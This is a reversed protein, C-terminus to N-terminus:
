SGAALERLRRLTARAARRQPGGLLLAELVRGPRGFVAFGSAADSTLTVLTGGATAPELTLTTRVAAGQGESATALERGRDLTVVSARLERERGGVRVTSTIVSGVVPPDPDCSRGAIGRRPDPARLSDLCAQWVREPPQALRSRRVVRRASSSDAVAGASVARHRM